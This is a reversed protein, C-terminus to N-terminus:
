FGAACRVATGFPGTNHEQFLQRLREKIEPEVPRPDYSRVSRRRQIKEMAKM